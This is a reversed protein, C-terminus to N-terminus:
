VRGGDRGWQSLHTDNRIEMPLPLLVTPGRPGLYWLKECLATVPRSAGRNPTKLLAACSHIKNISALLPGGFIFM